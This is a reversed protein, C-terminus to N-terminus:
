DDTRISIHHEVQRQELEKLEEDAGAEVHVLRDDADPLARILEDLKLQTAAQERTQTHQITFVMVTTVAACLAAFATEWTEPFGAIALAVGFVAVLVLVVVATAPRSTVRDIAHVLRSLPTSGRTPKM